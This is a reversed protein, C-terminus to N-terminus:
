MRYSIETAISTIFSIVNSLMSSFLIAVFMLFAMGLITFVVMTINKFLTFDHTIMSGFFILLGVWVWAVSELLTIVSAESTTLFHTCIVSPVLLLPLPLLAYSSAIFIDKLSGEGEFLTTLCWNAVVWLILPVLVSLAQSFVNVYYNYPNFAYGKGVSQYTFTLIAIGVYVLAARMSGRKEHKLDWFGDFPHFIIHFGYIFEQWFTKKKGSVAVKTNVKTAYGFFKTLALCLAVIVVPIILIYKSVWEKRFMKFSTSYNATDYANKYYEMAENWNGSRHLARGIGIYAADFNNNRQLIAEWDEKAKDYNRENQNKLANILIEGYETRDYITFSATSKDLLLLRAGQYCIARISKLNGLQSGQDGFIYLLAGNEDYTYVKQRKSDIVSWTGQEGLAIDVIDSANTINAGSSVTTGQNTFESTTRSLVWVEGFGFFGNRKMIDNGATNLKKVPSYTSGKSTVAAQQSTKSISNSTTYIFGRDDIEINNFETPIYSESRARQEKTQFFRWIIQMTSITVKQAGIFGQFEADENLAIVGMYTSSSVIYMRGSSDVAVAIPRYVSGEPFVDDEPEEVIKYFSGDEKHFIAIRKNDTDAVYIMGNGVFVGQPNDLSDPIGNGNIFSNIIFKEKYYRDTVVIRNNDSDAIYVNLENDVEIDSPSALPTQLGIYASNIVMTPTYADPSAMSYGDKAYIYTGYSTAAFATVTGLLIILCLSLAAFRTIKSKM